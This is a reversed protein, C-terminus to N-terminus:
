PASRARARAPAVAARSAMGRSTMRARPGPGAPRAAGAASAAQARGATLRPPRANRSSESTSPGRPSAEPVERCKDRAYQLRPTTPEQPIGRRRVSLPGQRLV